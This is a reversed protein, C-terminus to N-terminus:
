SFMSSLKLSSLPGDSPLTVVVGSPVKVKEKAAGIGPVWQLGGREDIAEITEPITSLGAAHLLDNDGDSLSLCGISAARRQIQVELRRGERYLRSSVQQLWKGWESGWPLTRAAESVLSSALRVATLERKELTEFNNGEGGYITGHSSWPTCNLWEESLEFGPEDPRVYDREPTTVSTGDAGNPQAHM